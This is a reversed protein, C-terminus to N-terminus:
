YSKARRFGFYQAEAESCFWSEGYEENIVVKDYYPDGPMHYIKEGTEYSINGAIVCRYDLYEGFDGYNDDNHFDDVLQDVIRSRVEEDRRKEEEEKELEAWYREAAEYEKEACEECYYGENNAGTIDGIFICINVFIITFLVVSVGTKVKELM